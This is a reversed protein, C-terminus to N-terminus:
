RLFNIVSLSSLNLVIVLLIVVGWLARIVFYSLFFLFLVGNLNGIIRLFIFALLDLIVFAFFSSWFLKLGGLLVLFFLMFRGVM